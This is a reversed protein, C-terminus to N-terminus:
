PAYKFSDLYRKLEGDQPPKSVWHIYVIYVTNDVYHVRGQCLAGTASPDAVRAPCDVKFDAGPHGDFTGSTYEEPKLPFISNRNKYELLKVEGQLLDDASIGVVTSAPYRDYLVFYDFGDGETFFLQSQVGDTNHVSSPGLTGDPVTISFKGDTSHFEKMQPACSALAVLILIGALYARLHRLM